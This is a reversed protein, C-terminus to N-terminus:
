SAFDQRLISFLASHSTTWHSLACVYKAYVFYKTLDGASSFSLFCVYGCYVDGQGKM